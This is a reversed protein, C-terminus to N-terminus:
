GSTSVGLDVAPAGHRVARVRGMTRPPIGEREALVLASATGAQSGLRRELADAARGRVASRFRTAWPVEGDGGEEVSSASLYVTETGDPRVSRIWRGEVIM